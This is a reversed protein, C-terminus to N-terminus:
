QYELLCEEPNHEVIFDDDCIIISKDATKLSVPQDSPTLAYTHDQQITNKAPVLITLLACSQTSHSNLLDCRLKEISLTYYERKFM